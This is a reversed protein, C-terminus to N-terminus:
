INTYGNEDCHPRHDEDDEITPAPLLNAYHSLSRTYLFDNWMCVQMCLHTMIRIGREM